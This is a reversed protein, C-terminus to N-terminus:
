SSEKVTLVKDRSQIDLALQIENITTTPEAKIARFNQNSATSILLTDSRDKELDKIMIQKANKVTRIQETLCSLKPGGDFIDVQNTTKFGEKELLKKAPLTNPHVQNLYQHSEIPLLNLYIPHKPFYKEIFTPDSVSKQDAQHFTKNIFKKGLVNWIPSVNNNFLFGRMEAIISSTFQKKAGHIFLFRGLSLLRGIGIGRAHPALFLSGLESPGLREQVFELFPYTANKHLVYSYYPRSVGTRQKIGSLGVIQHNQDELVFIFRNNVDDTQKFSSNAKEILEHTSKKTKPLNSLGSKAEKTLQYVGDADNSNIIRLRFPVSANM